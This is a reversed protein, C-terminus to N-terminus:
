NWRRRTLKTKKQVFAHKSTIRMGCSCLLLTENTSGSLTMETEDM